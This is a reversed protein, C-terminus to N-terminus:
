IFKSIQLSLSHPFQIACDFHRYRAGGEGFDLLDAALIIFLSFCLFVSVREVAQFAISQYPESSQSDINVLHTFNKQQFHKMIAVKKRMLFTWTGKRWPNSLFAYKRPELYVQTLHKLIPYSIVIISILLLISKFISFIQRGLSGGMRGKPSKFVAYFTVRSMELSKM